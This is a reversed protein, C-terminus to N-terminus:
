PICTFSYEVYFILPLSPLGGNIKLMPAAHLTPTSCQTVLRFTAPEIRSATMSIVSQCLGEPQVKDMHTSVTELLFSYWPHRKPPLPPRHTRSVVMGSEHTSPGSIRSSETEQVPRYFFQKVKSVLHLYSVIVGVPRKGGLSLSGWPRDLVNRHALLDGACAHAIFRAVTFM